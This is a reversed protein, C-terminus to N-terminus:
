IWKILNIKKIIKHIFHDINNTQYSWFDIHSKQIKLSIDNPVKFEFKNNITLIRKDNLSAKYGVGLLLLRRTSGVLLKKINKKITSIINSKATIIRNHVTINSNFLFWLCTNNNKLLVVYRSQKPYLYLYFSINKPITYTKM